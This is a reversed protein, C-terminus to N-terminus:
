LPSEAEGASDDSPPLGQQAMILATLEAIKENLGDVKKELSSPINTDVVVM